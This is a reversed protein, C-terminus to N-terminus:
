GWCNEWGCVLAPTLSICVAWLTEKAKEVFITQQDITLVEIKPKPVKPLQVRNAVNKVILGEDVATELANHLLRFIAEVTAPALGKDSLSNVFKRIIDKRLAKLKYHGGTQHPKGSEGYLHRLHHTECVTKQM